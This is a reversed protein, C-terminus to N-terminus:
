HNRLQIVQESKWKSLFDQIISKDDENIYRRDDDVVAPWKQRLEAGKFLHCTNVVGGAIGLIPGHKPSGSREWTWLNRTDKITKLFFEKSWISWIATIKGPYAVSRKLQLLDKNKMKGIIDHKKSKFDNCLSIRPIDDNKMKMVLQEILDHDISEIPLFDDVTFIFHEDEITSMYEYIKKTVQDYGEDEGMSILEFNEALTFNKPPNYSLVKVNPKPYWYKNIFYQMAEIAHISNDSSIIYINM